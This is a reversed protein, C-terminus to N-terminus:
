ENSLTRFVNQIVENQFFVGGDVGVGCLRVYAPLSQRLYADLTRMANMNKVTPVPFGTHLRQVDSWLVSGPRCIGIRGLQEEMVSALEVDALHENALIEITIRRDDSEGSFARYNTVRFFDLGPDFAYFYCLDSEVPRALQMHVLRHLIPREFGFTSLDINLQRAAGVVGNGLILQTFEEQFADGREDRWGITRSQIDCSLEHTQRIIRVGQAALYREASEVFGATGGKFYYRRLVNACSVPMERQDPVAILERFRENGCHALWDRQDYGVLRTLGCLLAAFGALESAPRKFLQTLIPSLVGNVYAEGFRELAVETVSESTTIPRIPQMGTVVGWVDDLMTQRDPHQRVDPFHSNHQLRGQYVAGAHGGQGPSFMRISEEGAMRQLMADIETEGTERFLHTGKDFYLGQEPYHVGALLGGLTAERELILIDKGSMRPLLSAAAVLGALGGGVIVQKM